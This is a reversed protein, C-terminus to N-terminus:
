RRVGLRDPLNSCHWDRVNAPSAFVCARWRARTRRCGWLRRSRQRSSVRAIARRLFRTSVRLSSRPICIRAGLSGPNTCSAGSLKDTQMAAGLACLAGYSHGFLLVPAGVAKVVAVVDEFERDIAYEPSDGSDGCGRRDMTTVTFHEEFRPRISAFSTRNASTGHVLVLHPGAGGQEYAISTGDASMVTNM